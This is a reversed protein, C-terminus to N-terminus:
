KPAPVARKQKTQVACVRAPTKRQLRFRYLDSTVRGSIQRELILSDTAYVRADVPFVSLVPDLVEPRPISGIYLTAPDLVAQEFITIPQLKPRAGAEAKRVNVRTLLMHELSEVIGARSVRERTCVIASVEVFPQCGFHRVRKPMATPQTNRSRLGSPVTIDVKM